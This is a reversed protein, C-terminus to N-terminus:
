GNKQGKAYEKAEKLRQKIIDIEHKPTSIGQTSKKQFSHLVYISEGIKVAYVARYTDTNFNSVIEMVGGELNKLPKVKPHKIGLQAFHLAYGVDRQVDQPFGKLDKLATGVWYLPKM